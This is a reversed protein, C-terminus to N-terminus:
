PIPISFEGIQRGDSFHIIKMLGYDAVLGKKSLRDARTNNKRFIHNIPLCNLRRWLRQTREIWGQLQPSLMLFRNTIWGIILQSDGYICVGQLQLNSAALLGGWLAMIEAKNNIGPGGNWFIHYRERDFLKIWVGCGINGDVFAGDFFIAPIDIAHPRIRHSGDIVVPLQFPRNDVWTKIAM